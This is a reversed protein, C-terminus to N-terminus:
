RRSRCASASGRRLAPSRLAVLDGHHRRGHPRVLWGNAFGNVLQPTGLSQGDATAEWGDSHSEGLVLWFPTGDTRVDLDYSDPSSDTIRVAAGSEDLPAGLVDVAAGQGDHGVVARAPRPRDRHRPRRRHSRTAGETSRSRADCPEVSLGRRADAAPGTVRVAVARATSACSTPAAGSTSPARRPPFRSARGLRGRRDVVPLLVTASVAGNTTGDRVADVVVRLHPRTLPDFPITVTQTRARRPSTASRPFRCRAADRRRRGALTLETPVPHRGDAVVTLDVRDVTSAARAPERRHM